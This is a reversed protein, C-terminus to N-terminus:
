LCGVVNFFESLNISMFILLSLKKIFKCFAVNAFQCRFSQYQSLILLDIAAQIEFYLNGCFVHYLNASLISFKLQTLPLFHNSVSQECHQSVQRHQGM